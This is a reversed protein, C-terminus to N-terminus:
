KFQFQVIPSIAGSNFEVYMARCTGWYTKPTKWNYQWQGDGKYQLGSNGPAYEEVADHPTQTECNTPYSYFGTFSAADEIPLGDADTLRWKAPVAQGAKATNILDNNLPTVFGEVQYSVLFTSCTPPTTVNNKADTGRICVENSGLQTAALEAIVDESVSDFGGDQAGMLEWAGGNLSYEAGTIKNNGTSADSVTARLTTTGNIIAPNPNVGIGDISPGTQDSYGVSIEIHNTDLSPQTGTLAISGQLIFGQSLDEGTVNWKAGNAAGVFSAPVLAIGNLKVDNLAVTPPTSGGGMGGGSMGGGSTSSNNQVNLLIYNLTDLAGVNKSVTVTGVTTSLIQTAPNYSLVIAKGMGGTVDGEARNNTTSLPVKGIYVEKPNTQNMGMGTNASSLNRYRVAGKLLADQDSGSAVRAAYVDTAAFLTLGAVATLKFLPLTPKM